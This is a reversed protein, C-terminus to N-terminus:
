LCAESQLWSGVRAPDRFPGAQEFMCSAEHLAFMQVSAVTTAGKKKQRTMVMTKLSSKARGPRPLCAVTLELGGSHDILRAVMAALFNAVTVNDVGAMQVM